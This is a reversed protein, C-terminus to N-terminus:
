YKYYKEYKGKKMNRYKEYVAESIVGYKIWQKVMRHFESTSMDEGGVLERPTMQPRTEWRKGKVMVQYLDFIYNAKEEAGKAGKYVYNVHPNSMGYKSYIKYEKEIVGQNNIFTSKGSPQSKIDRVLSSYSGGNKPLHKNVMDSWIGLNRKEGIMYRSYTLALPNDTKGEVFDLTGQLTKFAAPTPAGIPAAIANVITEINDLSFEFNGHANAQLVLDRVTEVAKDIDEVMSGAFGISTGFGSGKAFYEDGVNKLIAGGFTEYQLSGLAMDTLNTPDDLWKRDDSGLYFGSSAAKFLAPLIFHYVIFQKGSTAIKNFDGDKVGQAINTMAMMEM